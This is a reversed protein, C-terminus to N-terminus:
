YTDSAFKKQQSLRVVLCIDGTQRTQAPRQLPMLSVFNRCLSKIVTM